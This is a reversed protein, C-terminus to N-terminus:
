PTPSLTGFHCCGSPPLHFHCCTPVPFLLHHPSLFHCLLSSQSLSPISLIIIAVVVVVVPFTPCLSPLIIVVAPPLGHHCCYWWTLVALLLHHPIPPPCAPSSPLSLSHCPPASRGSAGLATSCDQVWGWDQSGISAPHIVPALLQHLLAIPVHVMSDLSVNAAGHMFCSWVVKITTQAWTLRKM